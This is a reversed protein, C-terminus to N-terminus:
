LRQCRRTARPRAGTSAVPPHSTPGFPSNGGDHARDARETTVNAGSRVRAAPAVRHWSRPADLWGCAHVQRLRRRGGGPATTDGVDRGGDAGQLETPGGRTVARPRLVEAM